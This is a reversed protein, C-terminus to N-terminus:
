WTAGIHVWMYYVGTTMRVTGTSSDGAFDSQTSNVLYPSTWRRDGKETLIAGEHTSIQVEIWYM